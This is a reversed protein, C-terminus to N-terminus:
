AGRSRVVAALAAADVPVLAVEGFGLAHLTAVIRAHPAVATAQAWDAQPALRRLNAAAESSSVLWLHERPRAVAADLLASAAADLRPLARRYAAVFDVQAGRSRLQEGLWDRGNEGRLVLVRRGQWDRERLRQWLAESDFADGPRPEILMAPPVGAARLMAATGPGPAAAWLPQPWRAGHPRAQMFYQVANASVFMALTYEALAAWAAHLPQADHAAAIEILPLTVADIGAARLTAALPEAQAQPRTVIVRM